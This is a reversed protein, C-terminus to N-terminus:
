GDKKEGLALRAEQRWNELASRYVITFCQHTMGHSDIVYAIDNKDRLATELQEIRDAAEDATDILKYCATCQQQREGILRLRKVLDDTM